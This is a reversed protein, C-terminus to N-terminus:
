ADAARGEVAAQVEGFAILRVSDKGYMDAFRALGFSGAIAHPNANRAPWRM